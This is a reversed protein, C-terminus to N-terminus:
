ACEALWRILFSLALSAMTPLVDDRKQCFLHDSSFPLNEQKTKRLLCLGTGALGDATAEEKMLVTLAPGHKCVETPSTKTVTAHSSLCHQQQSVALVHSQVPLVSLQCATDWSALEVDPVAGCRACCGCFPKLARGFGAGM